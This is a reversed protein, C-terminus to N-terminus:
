SGGSTTHSGAGAVGPARGPGNLSTAPTTPASSSSSGDDAPTIAESSSAAAAQSDSGDALITTIGAGAVIAAAVTGATIARTRRRLREGTPRTHESMNMPAM